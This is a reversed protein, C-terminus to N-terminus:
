VLQRNGGTSQHALNPDRPLSEQGALAYLSLQRRDADSQRNTDGVEQPRPKTKRQQCLGIAHGHEPRGGTNGRAGQYRKTRM